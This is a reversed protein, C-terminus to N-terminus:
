KAEADEANQILEFIFQAHDAYLQAVLKMHSSGSGFHEINEARIQDYNFPMRQVSNNGVVM